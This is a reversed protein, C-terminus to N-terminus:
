MLQLGGSQNFWDLLSNHNATSYGTVPPRDPIRKLFNAISTKFAELSEFNKTHSPLINWLRAAKVHFSNDYCTKAKATAERNLAPVKAQTGHRRHEIFTMHLDNPVLGRNIKWTHILIYRERRRQLSYLNLASLREWYTMNSMGSIRNTFHRQVDEITQIDQVLWPDWLPCCYELKSRILSKYLQLMVAKSRDRFVGLIWSVLKRSSNVMKNIHPGWTYNDSLYVGLDRVISKRSIEIDSTTKYSTISSLFPSLM